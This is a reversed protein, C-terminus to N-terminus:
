TNKVLMRQKNSIPWGFFLKKGGFLTQNKDIENSDSDDGIPCGTSRGYKRLIDYVFESLYMYHIFDDSFRDVYRGSDLVESISVFFERCEHFWSMWGLVAFHELWSEKDYKRSYVWNSFEGGIMADHIDDIQDIHNNDYKFGEFLIDLIDNTVVDSVGCESFSVGGDDKNIFFPFFSWDLDINILDNFYKLMNFVVRFDDKQVVVLMALIYVLENHLYTCFKKIPFTNFFFYNKDVFTNTIMKNNYSFTPWRFSFLNKAVASKNLSGLKDFALEFSPEYFFAAEDFL